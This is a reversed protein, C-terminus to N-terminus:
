LEAGVSSLKSEFLVIKDVVLHNVLNNLFMLRCQRGLFIKNCHSSKAGLLEEGVISPKTWFLVVKEAM